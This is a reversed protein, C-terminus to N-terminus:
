SLWGEDFLRDLGRSSAGASLLVPVSFEEGLLAAKELTERVSDSLKRQKVARSLARWSAPDLRRDIADFQQVVAFVDRHKSRNLSQRLPRLGDPASTDLAWRCGCASPVLAEVFDATMKIRCCAQSLFERDASMLNRLTAAGVMTHPLALKAMESRVQEHLEAVWRPTDGAGAKPMEQRLDRPAIILQVNDLGTRAVLVFLEEVAPDGIAICGISEAGGHIMIDGGLVSLERGDRGAQEIDAANPYNVRLSLHYRSNPNLLEIRYVGEPVQKDGERLKPGAMGSAALIPIHSFSAITWGFRGRCLDGAAERGEFCAAHAQEPPM